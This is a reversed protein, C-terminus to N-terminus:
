RYSAYVLIVIIHFSEEATITHLVQITFICTTPKKKLKLIAHAKLETNREKEITVITKFVSSHM